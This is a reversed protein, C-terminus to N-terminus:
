FLIEMSFGYWSDIISKKKSPDGIIHLEFLGKKLNTM